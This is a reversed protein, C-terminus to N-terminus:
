IRKICCHPYTEELTKCAFVSCSFQGDLICDTVQSITSCITHNNQKFVQNMLNM